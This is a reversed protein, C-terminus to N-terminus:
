TPVESGCSVGLGRSRIQQGRAGAPRSLLALGVALAAAVRLPSVHRHHSPLETVGNTPAPRPSYTFVTCGGQNVAWVLGFVAMSTIAGVVVPLGVQAVVELLHHLRRPTPPQPAIYPPRRNM